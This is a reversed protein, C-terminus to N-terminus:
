KKETFFTVYTHKMFLIWMRV